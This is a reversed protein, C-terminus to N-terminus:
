KGLSLGTARALKETQQFDEPTNLNLFALFDASYHATEELTLIRVRAQSLWSSTRHEGADMAKEIAPLCAERRYTAHLPELGKPASPIVADMEPDAIMLQREYGFLVISAFPMDCGVVAVLSNKANLLSTHIGGLPGFGPRHDRHLALGLFGYAEPKNTCIFIDEAFNRLRDLIHTILPKGQFTKLAKDEKMRDSNGGALIALSVKAATTM